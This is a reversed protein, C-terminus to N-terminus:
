KDISCSKTDYTVGLDTWGMPTQDFKLDTTAKPSTTVDFEYTLNQGKGIYALASYMDRGDMTTAQPVSGKGSGSVQFNAISGGAPAYFLMKETAQGRVGAAAQGNGGVVYWSLNAYDEDPLDNQMTFSVHYTQSGDENCSTRTVTTNRHLYWDLKSANQQNLYVGVEPNEESSPAGKSLGMDKFSQNEDEHFSTFYLHRGEAMPTTIDSLQMLKKVDLNEFLANMVHSAVYEFYWDQNAIYVDKYIGNLLFEATNDGTLLPGNPVQVDGTMKVLEQIFVPDIAMVGDVNSSYKSGQWFSTLNKAVTEYDVIASQDRIDFSFALPEDFVAHESDTGITTPLFETNPHFDGVQVKGNDTTMSGLSGILGGISRTESTTNAMILYTRQGDNGMFQPLIQLLKNNQNLKEALGSFQELGQEYAQKVKNIHPTTLDKLKEYEQQIQTNTNDFTKQIDYIPQMNVQGEGDSLKSSMLTNLSGSLSPLTKTALDDMVETMGQVTRIDDGYKPLKAMINWLDGHTIERAKATHEKMSPLAEDLSTSDLTKTIDKAKKVSEFAATEHTKVEMAQRYFRYGVMGLAVGLALLVAFIGLLVWPWVRRQKVESAAHNAGHNNM